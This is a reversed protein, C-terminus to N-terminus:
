DWHLVMCLYELIPGFCSAVSWIQCNHELMVGRLVIKAISSPQHTQADSDTISGLTAGSDKEHVLSAAQSGRNNRLFPPALPSAPWVLDRPLLHRGGYSYERVGIAGSIEALNPGMPGFLLNCCMQPPQLNDALASGLWWSNNASSYTRSCSSRSPFEWLDMDSYWRHVSSM